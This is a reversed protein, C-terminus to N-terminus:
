LSAAGCGAGDADLAGVGRAAILDERRERREMRPAPLLPALGADKGIRRDLAEVARRKGPEGRRADEPDVGQPEVPPDDGGEVAEGALAAVCGVKGAEIRAERPEAGAGHEEGMGNGRRDALPELAEVHQAALLAVFEGPAADRLRAVAPTERGGSSRVPASDRRHSRPAPRTS